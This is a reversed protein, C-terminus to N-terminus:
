AVNTLIYAVVGEVNDSLNAKIILSSFISHGNIAFKLFQQLEEKRADTISSGSLDLVKNL